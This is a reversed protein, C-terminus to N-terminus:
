RTKITLNANLCIFYLYQIIISMCYVTNYILYIQSLPLIHLLTKPLFFPYSSSHSSFYSSYSSSFSSSPSFLSYFASLIFVLRQSIYQIFLLIFPFNFNEFNVLLDNFVVFYLFFFHNTIGWKYWNKIM